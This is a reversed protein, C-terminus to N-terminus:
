KSLKGNYLSASSGGRCFEVAISYHYLPLPFLLHLLWERCQRRGEAKGKHMGVEPEAGARGNCRRAAWSATVVGPAVPPSQLGYPCGCAQASPAGM